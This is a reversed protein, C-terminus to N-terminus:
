PRRDLNERSLTRKNIVQLTWITIKRVLKTKLNNKNQQHKYQRNQKQHSFDTKWQAKKIYDELQQISTDISGQINAFGSGEEKRSMYLRDVDDRLHLADDYTKKNEPGNTSTRRDNM